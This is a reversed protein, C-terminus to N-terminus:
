RMTARLRHTPPGPVLWWLPWIWGAGRRCHACRSRRHWRRASRDFCCHTSGAMPATRRARSGPSIASCVRRKSRPESSMRSRRWAKRTATARSRPSTRWSPRLDRNAQLARYTQYRLAFAVKVRETLETEADKLEAAKQSVEAEAAERRLKQKGWLPIEQEVSYLMKNQRPGSLRDIEDSTIRLVPDPLSGAVKVRARAADADLARAALQPSLERAIALVSDLTAGPQLDTAAVAARPQEAHVRIRLRPCPFGLARTPPSRRLKALDPWGCM